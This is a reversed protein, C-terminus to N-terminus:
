VYRGADTFRKGGASPRTSSSRLVPKPSTRNRSSPPEITASWVPTASHGLERLHVRRGPEGPVHRLDFRPERLGDGRLGPERLLHGALRECRAALAQPRQEAEQRRTVLRGHRGGDGDLEHVHRREHM